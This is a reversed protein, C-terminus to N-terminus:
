NKSPQFNPLHSFQSGFSCRCGSSCGTFDSMKSIVFSLVVAFIRRSFFRIRKKTYFCLFWAKSVQCCITTKKKKKWKYYRNQFNNSHIWGYRFWLAGWTKNPIWHKLSIWSSELMELPVSNISILFLTTGNWIRHRGKANLFTMESSQWYGLTHTHTHSLSLSLLAHHHALM